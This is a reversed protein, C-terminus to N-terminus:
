GLWSKDLQGKYIYNLTKRGVIGFDIIIVMYGFKSLACVSNWASTAQSQSQSQRQALAHPTDQQQHQHQNMRQLRALCSSDACSTKGQGEVEVEVEGQWERLQQGNAIKVNDAALKWCSKIVGFPAPM